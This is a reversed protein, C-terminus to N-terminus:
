SATPSCSACWDPSDPQSTLGALRKSWKDLRLKSSALPRMSTDIDLQTDEHCAGSGSLRCPM